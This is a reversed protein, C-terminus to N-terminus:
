QKSISIGIAVDWMTSLFQWFLRIKAKFKGVEYM